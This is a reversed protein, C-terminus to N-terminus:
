YLVQDEGKEAIMENIEALLLDRRKLLCDIESPTLYKGMANQIKGRNLAKLNNVFKRPLKEFPFEGKIGNKGYLLKETYMDKTRFSRSHDILILRWDPTYRINQLSRDINAILSDWARLLYMMKEVHEKKDEPIPIEEKRRKLESTELTVWLQCSGRSMRFSREVTPPVMGFNMLKDLLYAAIEYDWGELISGQVGSPNKWVASAEMDENKLYLRRPKTVGEGIKEVKEIKATKLFEELEARQALEQPTFQYSLLISPILWAALILSFLLKKQM